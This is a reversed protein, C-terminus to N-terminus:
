VGSDIEPVLDVGKYNAWDHCTQYVDSPIQLNRIKEPHEHWALHCHLPWVGPNDTVFDMVMYSAGKIPDGPQLVFTDRRMPNKLNAVGDWEGLGEAVIWYNHGHLHMPHQCDPNPYSVNGAKALLLIPHEYNARFTNNNVYWLRNGTSNTLFRIDLRQTTAPDSPPDMAYVPTTVNLPVNGCYSDDYQTATTNPLQTLDADEYYIAAKAHGQYSVSCKESVDSRMWVADTSDGTAHILIDARQGIGISLVDTEYPVIPIFDNAIVTMNMNDISFRQFGQSSVNMVRLRYTKGKTFQFKSYTANSSCTLHNTTINPNSCDFPMRGNILNNDSYAQTTPAPLGVVSQVVEVYDAHYWDSLFVPGLDIDYQAHEPGHIIIPGFTGASYQAGYHSHWFTSGYADATFEYTFSKGPTIPCQVTSPVGDMWQTELMRLGHWHIATGEAPDLIENKVTVQITDGWNAEITPGPFQGNVLIVPRDVGDPAITARGITFHYRRVVGTYPIDNPNVQDATKHQWPNSGPTKPNDLYKPIIPANIMGLTSSFAVVNTVLAAAALIRRLMM